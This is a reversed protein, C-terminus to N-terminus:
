FPETDQWVRWPPWLDPDALFGPFFIIYNCTVAASASLFIIWLNNKRWRFQSSLSLLAKLCIYSKHYPSCLYLQGSKERSPSLATTDGCQQWHFSYFFLSCLFVFFVAEDTLLSFYIELELRIHLQTSTTLPWWLSIFTPETLAM